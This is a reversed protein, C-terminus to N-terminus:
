EPDVGVETVLREITVRYPVDDTQFVEIAAEDLADKTSRPVTITTTDSMTRLHHHDTRCCDGRKM